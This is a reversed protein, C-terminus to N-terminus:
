AAFKWANYCCILIIACLLADFLKDTASSSIKKNVSSGILGGLVGGAVMEALYRLEVPPITRQVCSTLFSAAQSCMIIYLSNAAAKKTEMSFAFFLIALNIPGGGIGLFSSMVGMFLGIAVVAAPNAVQFSPLRRRLGASYVLTLLTVLALVVAQVMGVLSDQGVAGKLAQFLANGGIGGLVAGLALMSGTKLEVLRSGRQRLMNVVSMSLVTLGSLFSISSVDMVGMADIVPKIIVGGGIGCIGGIISASLCIFFILLSM